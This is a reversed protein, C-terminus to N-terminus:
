TFCQTSPDFFKFCPCLLCLRSLLFKAVMNYCSFFYLHFIMLLSVIFTLRINLDYPFVYYTTKLKDKMSYCFMFAYSVKLNLLTFGYDYILCHYVKPSHVNFESHCSHERLYHMFTSPPSEIYFYFFHGECLSATILCTSSSKMQLVSLYFNPKSLHNDKNVVPLPTRVIKWVFILLNKLSLNASKHEKIFRPVGGWRKKRECVIALRNWRTGVLMWM